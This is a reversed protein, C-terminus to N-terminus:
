RKGGSVAVYGGLGILCCGSFLRQGRRLRLSNKMRQGIPGALLAVVIDAVSAGANLMEILDDITLGYVEALLILKGVANELATREAM